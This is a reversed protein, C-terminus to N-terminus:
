GSSTPTATGVSVPDSSPATMGSRPERTVALVIGDEAPVGDAVFYAM